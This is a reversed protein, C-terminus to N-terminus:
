YTLSVTGIEGQSGVGIVAIRAKRDDKGKLFVPAEKGLTVNSSLFSASLGALTGKKIFEKRNLKKGM